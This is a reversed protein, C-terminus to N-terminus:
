KVETLSILSTKVQRGIEVDAEVCPEKKVDAERPSPPYLPTVVDPPQITETLSGSSPIDGERPTSTIDSRVDEVPAAVSLPQQSDTAVDADGKEMEPLNVQFGRLNHHPIKAGKLAIHM